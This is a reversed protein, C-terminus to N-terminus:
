VELETCEEYFANANATCEAGSGGDDLCVAEQLQAAFTCIAIKQSFSEAECMLACESFSPEVQALCEAESGGDDICDEYEDAAYLLCDPCDPAPCVGIADGHKDLHKQVANGSVEITEPAYDGNHCITVKGAENPPPPVPAGAFAQPALVASGFLIAAFVAIGFMATITKTM